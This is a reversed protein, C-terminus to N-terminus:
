LLCCGASSQCKARHSRGFSQSRSFTMVILSVKPGDRTALRDTRKQRTALVYNKEHSAM